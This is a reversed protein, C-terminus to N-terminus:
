IRSLFDQKSVASCRVDVYVPCNRIFWLYYRPALASLAHIVFPENLLCARQYVGIHIITRCGLLMVAGLRQGWGEPSISADGGTIAM